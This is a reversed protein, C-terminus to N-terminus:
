VARRRLVLGAMGLALLALATPEPVITGNESYIKGVEHIDEGAEPRYTLAEEIVVGDVSPLIANKLPSAMNGNTLELTAIATGDVYLTLTDYASPTDSNPGREVVLSLRYTQGAQVRFSSEASQQNGRGQGWISFTGNKAISVKAVSGGMLNSDSSLGFIDKSSPVTNVTITASIAFDLNAYYTTGLNGVVQGSPSSAQHWDVSAAGVFAATLMAAFALILRKM